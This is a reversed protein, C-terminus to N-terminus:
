GHTMVHANNYQAISLLLKGFKKRTGASSGGVSETLYTSTNNRTEEQKQDTDDPAVSSAM